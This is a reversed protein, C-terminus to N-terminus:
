IWQTIGLVLERLQLMLDQFHLAMLLSTYDMIQFVL